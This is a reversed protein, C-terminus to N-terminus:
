PGVELSFVSDSFLVPRAYRTRETDAPKERNV